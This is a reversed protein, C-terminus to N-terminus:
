AIIFDSQPASQEDNAACVSRAKQQSAGAFLLAGGGQRTVQAPGIGRKTM